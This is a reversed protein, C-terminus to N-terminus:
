VLRPIRLRFLSRRVSPRRLRFPRFKLFIKAVSFVSNVSIKINSSDYTKETRETALIIKAFARRSYVAFVKRPRALEFRARANHASKGAVSTALLKKTLSEGFKSRCFRILRMNSLFLKTQHFFPQIQSFFAQIRCFFAQTFSLYSRIRSL